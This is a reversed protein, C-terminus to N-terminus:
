LNPKAQSVKAWNPGVKFAGRVWSGQGVPGWQSRQHLSQPSELKPFIISYLTSIRLDPSQNVALGPSHQSQLGPQVGLVPPRESSPKVGPHHIQLRLWELGWAYVSVCAPVSTHTDCVWVPICIIVCVWLSRSSLTDYGAPAAQLRTGRYLLKLPREQRRLQRLKTETRGRWM